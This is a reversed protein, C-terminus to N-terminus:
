LIICHLRQFAFNNEHRQNGGDHTDREGLGWWAVKWLESLRLLLLLSGLKLLLLSRLRLKLLGLKLLWLKLCLNRLLDDGVWLKNFTLKLGCWRDLRSNAGETLQRRVLSDALKQFIRIEDVLLNLTSEVLFTSSARLSNGFMEAADASEQTISQGGGSSPGRAGITSLVIEVLDLENGLVHKAMIRALSTSKDVLEPVINISM